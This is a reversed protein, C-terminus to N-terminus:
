IEEENEDEIQTEIKELKKYSKLCKNERVSIIGTGNELIQEVIENLKELGNEYTIKYLRDIHSVIVWDVDNEKVDNLLKNLGERKSLVSGTDQYVSVNAGNFEKDIFERLENEQKKLLNANGKSDRIYIYIKQKEESINDIIKTEIFHNKITAINNKDM